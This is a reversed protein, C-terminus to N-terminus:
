VNSEIWFYPNRWANSTWSCNPKLRRLIELALHPSQGVFWPFTSYFCVEQVWCFVLVDLGSYHMQSTKCPMHDREYSEVFFTICLITGRTYLYKLQIWTHWRPQKLALLYRVVMLCIPKGAVNGEINTLAKLAAVLILWVSPHWRKCTFNGLELGFPTPFFCPQSINNKHERKAANTTKQCSFHHISHNYVDKEWSEATIWHLRCHM